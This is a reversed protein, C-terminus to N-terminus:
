RRTIDKNLLIEPKETFLKFDPASPHTIYPLYHHNPKDKEWANRWFLVWAINYTSILPYLVETFYTNHLIGEMGTEGIFAIKNHVQAYQTTIDLNKKMDKKYFDIVDILKEDLVYTDFGIMDVYDDGPYRELFHAENALSSPTYAFILNNLNKEKLMYDVTMRWLQKYEEATCQDAGWWFWNGTNEHYPRFIIPIPKGKEDILDRFFNSVKDLWTLYEKHNEGEPLVSRVVTNQACDWTNKRTVINSGHWSCTSIGGRLHTEKIYRKMDDFCVSDLNKEFGLEINGLELGVVAPYDGVIDKVDSREEDGFWRSGYALADQHGLMIKHNAVLKDLFLYLQLTEATANKNILQLPKEMKKKKQSNGCSMLLSIILLASIKLKYM